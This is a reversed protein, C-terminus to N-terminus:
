AIQPCDLLETGDFTTCNNGANAFNTEPYGGLGNFMTVFSLM